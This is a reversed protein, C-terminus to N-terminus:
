TLAGEPASNRFELKVVPEWGRVPRKSKAFGAADSFRHGSVFRQYAAREEAAQSSADSVWLALMM